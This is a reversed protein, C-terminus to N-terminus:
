QDTTPRTRPVTVHQSEHLFVRYSRPTNNVGFWLESPLEQCHIYFSMTPTAEEQSEWWFWRGDDSTGWNVGMMVGGRRTLGGAGARSLSMKVRAQEAQPIAAMFPAWSGARPRVEIDFGGDPRAHKALHFPEIAARTAEHTRGEASAAIREAWDTDTLSVCLRTRLGAPLLTSDVQGQFVAIVPFAGSRTNLARDLAYAYEERCPQSGLSAQTAFMLWADSEGPNQIFTDIQDWLRQGASIKWRDLKVTLGKKQLEQAIFDVDGHANDAWAYTLWITAV